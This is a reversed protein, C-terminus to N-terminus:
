LGKAVSRQIQVKIVELAKNLQIDKKEEPTHMRAPEKLDLWWPGKGKLYDKETLPLQIDPVIGKKNIDTDHPTLYRAITINLGSGDDLRNIGQVLGKGFSKQGVLIARGNDRLAGSTIEAASASGEDILVVLPLNTIPRGDSMAPTKYGDRDVTSVINGGKLFMNSIDVANTLLGGPNHRLDLILGKANSLKAIADRM